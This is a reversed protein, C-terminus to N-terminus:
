ESEPLDSPQDSPYDITHCLAPLRGDALAAMVAPLEAFPSSGTLLAEYAPDRLLELALALREAPSRRARRVPAVSGM